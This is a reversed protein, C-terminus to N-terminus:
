CDTQNENEGTAPPRSDDGEPTNELAATLKTIEAQQAENTKVLVANSEELKSFKDELETFKDALELSADQLDSFQDENKKQAPKFKEAFKQAFTQKPADDGEPKPAPKTDSPKDKDDAMTFNETEFNSTFLNNKFRDDAPGNNQASFCLAEVGVSAPRDTVALGMLYAKGTKAFNKAIEMSTFLKQKQENMSLLSATPEIQAQLKRKGNGADKSKLAVVKGLSFGPFIFNFHELNILATYLDADYTAAMDDIDRADIERGDVTPGSTGITFFKSILNSITM